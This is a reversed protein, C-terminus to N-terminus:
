WIEQRKMQFAEFVLLAQLSVDLERVPDYEWEFQSQEIGRVVNRIRISQVLQPRDHNVNSHAHGM